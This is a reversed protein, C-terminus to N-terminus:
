RDQAAPQPAPAPRPLLRLVPAPEPYDAASKGAAPIEIWRHAGKECEQVVPFYLPRGPELDGAVFGQFVFEDYWADPLKGGSWVIETVGESLKANHFFTYTKDYKGTTTALTWGPKPMPKVAILGGPIRVRLATTATGECGHPVRLVAKYPEGIKAEQTELTVHAAAPIAFAVVVAGILASRIVAIELFERQVFALRM